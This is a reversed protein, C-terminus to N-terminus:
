CLIPEALKGTFIKKGFINSSVGAQKFDDRFKSIKHEFASIRKSIANVQNAKIPAIKEQVSNSRKKLQYWKDPLEAFQFDFYQIKFLVKFISRTVNNLGLDYNFKLFEM